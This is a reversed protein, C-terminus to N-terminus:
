KVDVKEHVFRNAAEDYKVKIYHYKTVPYGPFPSATNNGGGGSVVYQVLHGETRQFPYYTHVHGTMVMEVKSRNNIVDVFWQTADNKDPTSNGHVLMWLDRHYKILEDIKPSACYPWEQAVKQDAATALPNLRPPVHMTTIIHNGQSNNLNDIFHSKSNLYQRSFEFIHWDKKEFILSCALDKRDPIAEKKGPLEPEADNFAVVTLTDELGGAAIELRFNAPGMYQHYLNLPNPPNKQGKPHYFEHNGMTPIVPINTNATYTNCEQIFDQYNKTWSSNVLDGGILIFLPNEGAAQNLIKTFGSNDAGSVYHSDALFVFCPYPTKAGAVRADLKIKMDSFLTM